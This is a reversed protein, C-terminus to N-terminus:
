AGICLSASIRPSEHSAQQRCTLEVSNQIAMKLMCTRLAAQWLVPALARSHLTRLPSRLASSMLSTVLDEDSWRVAGWFQCCSVVFICCLVAVTESTCGQCSDWTIATCGHPRLHFHALWCWIHQKSRKVGQWLAHMVLVAALSVCRQLQLVSHCTISAPAGSSWQPM